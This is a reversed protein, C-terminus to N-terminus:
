HVPDRVHAEDFLSFIFDYKNIFYERFWFDSYANVKESWVAKLLAWNLMM